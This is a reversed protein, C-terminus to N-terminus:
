FAVNRLIESGPATSDRRRRGAACTRWRQAAGRVGKWSAWPPRPQDSSPHKTGAGGAHGFSHALSSPSLPPCTSRSVVLRPRHPSTQGGRVLTNAVDQENLTSALAEVRGVLKKMLGAGPEWGRSRRATNVPCMLMYAWLTNVVERTKFTAAVAEALGELEKMLGEGPDLYMTAYAWLTNVVGQANFTGALAEVRGELVRMVGKEPERRMTAYAWLTNSVNQANFTGALAEARGELERMRMDPNEWSWEHIGPDLQDEECYGDLFKEVMSSINGATNGPLMAAMLQSFTDAVKSGGGSGVAEAAAASPCYVPFLLQVVASVFCTNGLNPLGCFPSVGEQSNDRESRGGSAGGAGGSPAAFGDAATADWRSAETARQLDREEQWGLRGQCVAACLSKRTPTPPLDEHSTAHVGTSRKNHVVFAGCADMCACVAGSM